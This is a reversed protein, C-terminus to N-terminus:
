GGGRAPTKGPARCSTVRGNRSTDSTGMLLYPQPCPCRSPVSHSIVALTCFVLPLSPPDREGRRPAKEASEWPSRPRERPSPRVNTGFRASVPCCGGSPLSPAQPIGGLGRHARPAATGWMPCSRPVCPSGRLRLAVPDTSQVAALPRHHCLSGSPVVCIGAAGCLGRHCGEPADWFGLEAADVFWMCLVLDRAGRDGQNRSLIDPTM